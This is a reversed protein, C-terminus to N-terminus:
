GANPNAQRNRSSDPYGSSSRAMWTYCAPSSGADEGNWASYGVERYSDPPISSYTPLMAAVTKM